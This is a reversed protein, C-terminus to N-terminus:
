PGQRVADAAASSGQHGGTTKAGRSSFGAPFGAGAHGTARNGSSQHFFVSSREYAESFALMFGRNERQPGRHERHNLRQSQFRFPRSIRIVTAADEESQISERLERFMMIETLLTEM